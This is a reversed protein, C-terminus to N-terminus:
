ARSGLPAGGGAGTAAGAVARPPRRVARRVALEILPTGVLTPLVWAAWRGGANVVALATVLAIYSGGMGRVHLPLWRRPRARAAWRGVAASGYSGAAIPVFWWLGAPDFAALAVASVGVTLMWWHFASGARTHLGRRKAARMAIPGVVLGVTGAVVHVVLVFTHM